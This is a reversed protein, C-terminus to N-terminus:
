NISVQKAPVGVWTQDDPVSNVVVAGAGVMVRKGLKVCQKVTAGMGIWSAEGVIVAGALTAGPSIHVGSDIQCDHDVSAATNIICAEGIKCFPNIVAGAMVVSGALISSYRSVTATPHILRPFKVDLSQLYKQKSTRTENNGIAIVCGDFLSKQSIFQETTGEIKWHEIANLKPFADDFFCVEWHNLEAIEAVVKGHGSAGIIALKKM